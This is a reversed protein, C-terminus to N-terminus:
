VCQLPACILCAASISPVESAVLIQALLTDINRDGVDIQPLHVDGGAGLQLDHGQQMAM